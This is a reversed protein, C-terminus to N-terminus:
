IVANRVVPLVADIVLLLGVRRSWAVEAVM